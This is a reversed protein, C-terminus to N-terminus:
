PLLNALTCLQHTTLEEPRATPTIGCSEIQSETLLGKLSGRLMKRRHGFAARLLVDLKDMDVPYRPAPLPRLQVISSMVKPPPTFNGPGVDFLRTADSLLHTLVGLRGWHDNGGTAVLRQIVEKQLMFTLTPQLNYTTPQLFLSDRPSPQTVHIGAQAPMVGLPTLPCAGEVGVAQPRSSPYTLLRTVIETGVNYPLNGCIPSGAPLHPLWSDLNLADGHIVTLRNGHQASLAELVPICRTDMEVALVHAGRRLLEATLAGTGPGIEAVWVEGNPSRLAPELGGVTVGVADAIRAIVRPNNLFHQGLHKAPAVHSM